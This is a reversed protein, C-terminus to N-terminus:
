GSLASSASRPGCGVAGVAGTGLVNSIARDVVADEPLGAHGVQDSPCLDQVWINQVGPERIFSSGVPTVTREHTTDIVTYGIGPQAIAGTDLSRVFASHQEMDVCSPCFDGLVSDAVRRGLGSAQVVGGLTTGHTVPALLVERHIHARQGLSKAVYEALMGGQSHGVIDVQSAGTAQLVQDIFRSVQEASTAVPAMGNVAGFTTYWRGYNTAYVCYGQSSLLRALSDFARKSDHTGHVLVVPYPHAPSSACSWSETSATSSDAAPVASAGSVLGLSALLTIAGGVASLRLRLRKMSERQTFREGPGAHSVGGVRVTGSM